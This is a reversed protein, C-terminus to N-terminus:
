AYERTVEEDVSINGVNFYKNMLEMIDNELNLLKEDRLLSKQKDWRFSDSLEVRINIKEVFADELYGEVIFVGQDPYITRSCNM